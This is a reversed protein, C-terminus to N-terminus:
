ITANNIRNRELAQASTMESSVVFAQVPKQQLQALQNMGNNGVVNFQPAQPAGGVGTEGGGGGGGSGSPVAGGEFKTKAIKAVNALGSVVAIGAAIAARVPADPSPITMQSAYASQAAQYTTITAQAISSAKNIDFARKQSKKSKGAFLETITSISSLGDKVLNLQANLLDEKKKNADEDLKAIEGNTKKSLAERGLNYQEETLLKNDFNTKLILLEADAKTQVNLRALEDESLVLANYQKNAELKAKALDEAIKLDEGAFKTRLANLETQHQTFLQAQLEANGVAKEQESDFKQALLLEEYERASLSLKQTALWEEDEKKIKEKAYKDRILALDKEQLDLNLKILEDVQKRKKTGENVEKELDENERKYKLRIAELEKEQGDKVLALKADQLDRAIDKQEVASSKANNRLETRHEAEMVEIAQKTALNDKYSEGAVKKSEAMSKKLTKVRDSDADGTAILMLIEEQYAKIKLAQASLFVRGSALHAKAKALELQYTEKGNAKALNIEHTYYDDDSKQKIKSIKAKLNAEKEVAKTRAEANAKNKRTTADDVVGFYELAKVIGVIVGILPFALSILIKVGAGLKNFRDYAGIVANKVADFNAILLGLGVVLAGVGTSILAIRFLKMAGTSTGVTATYIATAVTLATTKISDIGKMLASEKQLAIQVQQVGNAIAMASQVRLMAKELNKNETGMLGMAGTVAEFGGTVASLGGLAVDVKGTDSAFNKVQQNLDGIKDQLKGAEALLEKFGESGEDMTSLELKMEKLQQKLSKTKETVQDLGQEKVELEITRKEAM